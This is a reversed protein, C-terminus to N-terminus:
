QDLTDDVWVSLKKVRWLKTPHRMKRMARSQIRLVDDTSIALCDAIVDVTRPEGNDLGFRHILVQRQIPELEGLLDDIERRVYEMETKRLSPGSVQRYAWDLTDEPVTKMDDKEVAFKVEDYKLGTAAALEDVTPERSLYKNLAEKSKNITNIRAHMFSPLRITRGFNQNARQMRQRIHWWALSSFKNGKRWDFKVLANMLGLTGEQVLDDYTLSTGKKTAQGAHLANQARRIPGWHKGAVYHVLAINSEIFFRKAKRGEQALGLDRVRDSSSEDDLRAQAQKGAEIKKALDMEEQRTLKVKEVVAESDSDEDEDV